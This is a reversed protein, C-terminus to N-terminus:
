VNKGGTRDSLNRVIEGIEKWSSVRRIGTEATRNRISSFLLAKIGNEEALTCYRVSDDIMLDIDNELYAALKDFSCVLRDYEIGLNALEAETTRRCDTYLENSRATVIVVQHGMKRIESIIRAADPKAPTDEILADFYKRAFNLFEGQWEEPLGDYTISNNTLYEESVNYYESVYPTLYEATATITDDIDIAINM